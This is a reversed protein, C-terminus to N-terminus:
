NLVKNGAELKPYFLLRSKQAIYGVHKTPWQHKNFGIFQM